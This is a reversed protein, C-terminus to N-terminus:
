GANRADLFSSLDEDPGTTSRPPNNDSGGATLTLPPQAPDNGTGHPSIATPPVELKEAPAEFSRCVGEALHSVTKAPARLNLTVGDREVQLVWSAIGESDVGTAASILSVGRHRLQTRLEHEFAAQAAKFPNRHKASRRERRNM